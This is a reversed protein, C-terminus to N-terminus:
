CLEDMRGCRRFLEIYLMLEDRSGVELKQYINTNHKRVTNISIYALEAVENIDYGNAYYKIINRETPTLAQARESFANFLEAVDAPLGNEDVKSKDHIFSMLKDIEEIGSYKGEELFGDHQLVAISKSIPQVFKQSLYVSLLLMLAIFVTGGGIWFMRNLANIRAYQEQPLLTIVYIENGDLTRTDLKQQMGLYVTHPSSYTNFHTGEKVFLTDVDNMCVGNLGGVLCESLKLEGDHIPGAITVMNGFPSEKSPYSLRFYLDSIEMGCIGAVSGDTGLVPIEILALNEWTDTLQHHNVWVYSEALRDVKQNLLESFGPVKAVDFELRWRNHLELHNNRAIDAMGRYLTVDQNVANENSLNAFRLYIGARSNDAGAASTNITTDLILYVGNCPASHLAANLESYFHSQLKKMQETDNDLTSIPSVYIQDKLIETTEESLSIGQAVLRNLQENITAAAYNQQISLHQQLQDRTASFVGLSGLLLWLLVFIILSLTILYFLVRRRIGVSHQKDKHLAHILKQVRNKM